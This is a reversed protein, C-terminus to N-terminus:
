PIGNPLDLFGRLGAEKEEAFAEMGVWGEVGSLVACRVIMLVDHM